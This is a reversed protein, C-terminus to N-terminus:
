HIEDENSNHGAELDLKKKIYLSERALAIVLSVLSALM